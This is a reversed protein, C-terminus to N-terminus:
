RALTSTAESPPWAVGTVIGSVAFPLIVLTRFLTAGKIRQNLLAAILFGVVICQSMFGASFLGLNRLNWHFREM